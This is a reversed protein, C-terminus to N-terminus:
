PTHGCYALSSARDLDGARRPYLESGTPRRDTAPGEFAGAIQDVPRPSLSKDEDVDIM